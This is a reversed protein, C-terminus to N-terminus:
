LVPKAINKLQQEQQSKIKAEETAKELKEGEELLKNDIIYMSYGSALERQKQDPYISFKGSYKPCGGTYFSPGRHTTSANKYCSDSKFPKAISNTSEWSVNASNFVYAGQRAADEDMQTILEKPIAYKESIASILEILNINKDSSYTAVSLTRGIHYVRQTIKGFTASITESCTDSNPRSKRCFDIYIISDGSKNAISRESYIKPNIAMSPNYKKVADKVQEPTSGLEIGIVDFKRQQSFSSISILFCTAFILTNKM